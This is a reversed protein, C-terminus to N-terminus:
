DVMTASQRGRMSFEENTVKIPSLRDDRKSLQQVSEPIAKLQNSSMDALAAKRARAVQIPLECLVLGAVRILDTDGGSGKATQYLDREHPSITSPDRPAWGRRRNKMWHARDKEDLSGDSIWRQVFGPRATPADLSTPNIWRAADVEAHLDPRSAEADRDVHMPARVNHPRERLVSIDESDDSKLAEARSYRRSM